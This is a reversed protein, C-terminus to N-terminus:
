RAVRGARRLLGDSWASVDKPTIPEPAFDAIDDRSSPRAAIRCGSPRNAADVASLGGARRQRGAAEATLLRQEEVFRDLYANTVSWADGQNEVFRHVVCVASRGEGEVLEVTGLLPPTNAFAVTDTLFRGVEIEPNVDPELRRFLKVVYDNDVLVTTNSQETDVARVNQGAASGAYSFAASPRFEM